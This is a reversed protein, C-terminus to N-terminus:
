FYGYAWYAVSGIGKEELYNTKAKVSEEDEFWVVHYNIRAINDVIESSVYNVETEKALDDRKVVCNQWECHDLFKKKIQNYTLSEAQRIPRKKEDVIWEYGYMGFIVTLKEQDAFELYDSIMQQFDYGYKEKGSLPFNPGPEGGKSKHFDYAMIFIEDTNKSLYNLDFAKKRHLADGYLILGLRLHNDKVDTYFKNVFSNIQTKKEDQFLSFLEIDLAIESFKYKNAINISEDILKKQVDTNKLVLDNTDDSIMKIVLTKPISIDSINELKNFADDKIFGFDSPTLGFYLLRDYDTLQLEQGKIIQWNPVFISKQKRSLKKKTQLDVSNVPTLSIRSLIKGRENTTKNRAGVIVLTVPIIIALILLATKKM